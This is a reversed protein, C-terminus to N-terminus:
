RISPAALSLPALLLTGLALLPLSRTQKMAFIETHEPATLRVSRRTGPMLRPSTQTFDGALDDLNLSNDM